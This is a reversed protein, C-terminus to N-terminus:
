VLQPQNEGLSIVAPKDLNIILGWRSYPTWNQAGWKL